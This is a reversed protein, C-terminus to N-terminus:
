LHLLNNDIIHEMSLGQRVFLTQLRTYKCGLLISLSSMSYFKGKYPILRNTTKNNAQEYNTSWKCNSPEYNGNVDIRDISHKSTPKEGMDYFFASFDNLWRDCVTIGRGGYNKYKTHTLRYCRAKISQWTQYEPIETSLKHYKVKIISSEHKPTIKLKICGCSKQRGIKNGAIVAENGCECKCRWYIKKEKCHDKELHGVYEIVTLKAYVIGTKDISPVGKNQRIYKGAKM